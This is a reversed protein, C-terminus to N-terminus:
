GQWLKVGGEILNWSLVPQDSCAISDLNAQWVSWREVSM